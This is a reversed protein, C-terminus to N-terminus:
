NLKQREEVQADILHGAATWKKMQDLLMERLLVESAVIRPLPILFDMYDGGNALYDNIALVYLKGEELPMGDVTLSSLEGDISEVNLGAIGLNKMRVAYKALTEVDVAALELLYIYNEFPSLEFINGVTIEGEPLSNRLGGNNIVSIDVKHDFEKISYDMQMDAVLNGLPSEGINKTLKRAGEAVVLGMEKELQEKYPSILNVYNSDKKIWDDVGLLSANSSKLVPQACSFLLFLLPLWLLRFFAPLRSTNQEM